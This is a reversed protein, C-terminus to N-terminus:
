LIEVGIITIDDQIAENYTNIVKEIANIKGDINKDINKSILAIFKKDDFYDGTKDDMIEVIGDTFLLIEDNKKFTHRSANYSVDTDAGLIKQRNKIFSVEKSRKNIILPAGHGANIYEFSRDAKNYIGIFLTILEIGKFSDTLFFNVEKFTSELSMGERLMSYTISNLASLIMSSSLGHGSVDGMVLATRDEDINFFDFYDGIVRLYPRYYFNIDLGQKKDPVVKPFLRLQVYSANDMEKEYRRQTIYEKYLKDNEIMQHLQAAVATLYNIENHTFLERSDGSKKEGYLIAGKLANENFVPIVLIYDKEEMYAVIKDRLDSSEIFQYRLFAKRHIEMFRYLDSSYLMIEVDDLGNYYKDISDQFLVMELRPVDICQSIESFIGDIKKNIDKESSVQEVINQLSAAYTGKEKFNISDQLKITYFLMFFIFSLFVIVILLHMIDFFNFGQISSLSNLLAAGIIAAVINFSLISVARYKFNILEYYNSNLMGNGILIPAFLTLSIFVPVPIFFDVYFSALFVVGPIVYSVFLSLIIFLNRKTIVPNKIKQIKTLIKVAAFTICLITYAFGMINIYVFYIKGTYSTFLYIFTLTGLIAAFLYHIFAPSRQNSLNYGLLIILYGAIFVVLVFFQYQNRFSVVEALSFYLLSMTLACFFYIKALYNSSGALRIFIGWIYYVNAIVILLSLYLLYNYNIGKKIITKNYVIGNHKYSVNLEKKSEFKKLLSILNIKDVPENEIMLLESRLPLIEKVFDTKYILDNQSLARKFPYINSFEISKNVLYIDIFILPIILLLYIYKKSM